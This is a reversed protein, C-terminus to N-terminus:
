RRWEGMGPLGPRWRPQQMATSPLPDSSVAVFGCGRIRPSPARIKAEPGVLVPDILAHRAAELAGLLSDRDCPHVVACIVPDFGDCANLLKAIGDTRRLILKPPAADPRYSIRENPVAVTMTGEVLIDGGRKVTCHFVVRRDVARREGATVTAIIQDGVAFVGRFSLSQELVVTGPGPLQRQLLASLLAGGAVADASDDDQVRAGDILHLADVRGSLFALLEVDPKSLTHSASTSQGTEIEAFLRNSAGAVAFENTSTTAM